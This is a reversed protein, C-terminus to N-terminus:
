NKIDFEWTTEIIGKGAAYISVGYHGEELGEPLSLKATFYGASEIIKPGSFYKYAAGGGSIILIVLIVLSIPILLKKM